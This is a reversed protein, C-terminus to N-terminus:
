GSSPQGIRADNKASEFKKGSQFKKMKVEFIKIAKEAAAKSEQLFNLQKKLLDRKDQM